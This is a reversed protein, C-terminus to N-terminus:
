PAAGAAPPVISDEVGFLLHVPNHPLIKQVSTLLAQADKEGDPLEVAGSLLLILTQGAQLHTVTRGPRLAIQFEAFVDTLLLRYRDDTQEWRLGQGMGYDPGMREYTRHFLRALEEAADLLPAEVPGPTTDAALTPAPPPQHTM